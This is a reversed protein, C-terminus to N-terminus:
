YQKRTKFYDMFGLMTYPIMIGLLYLAAVIMPDFDLVVPIFDTIRKALAVMVYINFLATIPVVVGIVHHHHKELHKLDLLLYSFIFGFVTGVILVIIYAVIPRLFVIMPVLIMSCIMSAIVLVVLAISYFIRQNEQTFKMHKAKLDSSELVESPNKKSSKIIPADVSSKKSSKAM